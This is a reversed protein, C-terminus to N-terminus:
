CTKIFYFGADEPKYEHMTFVETINNLGAFEMVARNVGYHTMLFDHGSVIGGCKIKPYWAYLDAIVGTYSHDGDFHIFDISGDEFKTSIDISMGRMIKCREGFPATLKKTSEYNDDHWSQEYSADGKQELTKWVDVAYHQGLKWNLIDRTFFGSAVGVEVTSAYKPLLKWLHDRHNIIEM